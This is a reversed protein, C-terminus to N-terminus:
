GMKALFNIDDKDMKPVMFNEVLNALNLAKELAAKTEKKDKNTKKKKDNNGDMKREDPKDEGKEKESIQDEKILSTDEVQDEDFPHQQQQQEEDREEESPNRELPLEKTTTVRTRATAATSTPVGTKELEKMINHLYKERKEKDPEAEEM